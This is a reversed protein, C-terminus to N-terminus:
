KLITVHGTKTHKKGDMTTYNVLYTYVDDKCEVGKSTGDWGKKQDNSTFLKEGWRDFINMELKTIGTGYVLFVDNLGDYNPTFINPIYIAFENTVEICVEDIAKCGASTVAQVKYCGSSTPMIQSDPCDRCLIGDGMIWTLTGTGRANLHMPEDINFIMDPGADVTPQPNVKVMVTASSGCYGGNSVFVTYTTTQVPSAYPNAVLTNSLGTSPAWVYTDSGGAQLKVSEGQCIAVSYNVAATVQPVVEIMIEKTMM